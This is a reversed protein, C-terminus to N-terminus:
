GAASNRLSPGVRIIDGPSALGNSIDYRDDGFGWQWKKDPGISYIMYYARGEFSGYDFPANSGFYLYCQVWSVQDDGVPLFPDRPVSTMYAIPTTIVGIGTVTQQMGNLNIANRSPAILGTGPDVPYSNQDIKYATLADEISRQESYVRSVKARLQANLFNPVAIAALIGIIAVVILLEILTFARRSLMLTIM